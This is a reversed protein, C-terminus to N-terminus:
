EWKNRLERQIDLADKKLNIKGLYKYADIVEPEILSERMSQILDKVAEVVKPDRSELLATEIWKVETNLDM